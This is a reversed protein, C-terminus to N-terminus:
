AEDEIDLVEDDAVKLSPKINDIEDKEDFAEDFDEELLDNMDSADKDTEAPAKPKEMDKVIFDLDDFVLEQAANKQSTYIDLIVRAIGTAYLNPPFFNETRVTHLLAEEKGAIAAEVADDPYTEECILSLDDKDLEAYEQIALVKKEVNRYIVYKHKM